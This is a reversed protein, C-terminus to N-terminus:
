GSVFAYKEKVGRCLVRSGGKPERAERDSLVAVGQAPLQSSLTQHQSSHSGFKNIWEHMSKVTVGLRQAVEAVMYGRHTVQKVAEFKFIESYRKASM